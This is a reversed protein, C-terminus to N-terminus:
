KLIAFPLSLSISTNTSDTIYVHMRYQGETLDEPVFQYIEQGLFRTQANGKTPVTSLVWRIQQTEAISDVIRYDRTIRYPAVLMGPIFRYGNHMLNYNEIPTVSIPQHLWLSRLSYYSLKKTNIVSTIGMWTTIDNPHDKWRYAFGGPVALNPDELYEKWKHVYEQAKEYDNMELPQKFISLKSLKPDWYGDPGYASIVVKSAFDGDTLYDKLLQFHEDYFVNLGIFVNPGLLHMHEQIIEIGSASFPISIILNVHPATEYLKGALENVFSFYGDIVQQSYPKAFHNKIQGIVDDGINWFLIQDTDHFMAIERQLQKQLNNVGKSDCYYDLGVPLGAEVMLKLGFRRSSNIVNRLYLDPSHVRICNAGISSIQRFDADLRKKSFMATSQIEVDYPNYCIGKLTDLSIKNQAASISSYPIYSVPDIQKKTAIRDYLGSEDEQERNNSILGAVNWEESLDDLKKGGHSGADLASIDLITPKVKGLDSSHTYNIFDPHNAESIRIIQWDYNDDNPLLSEGNPKISTQWVWIAKNCENDDFAELLHDYASKIRFSIERNNIIDESVLDPDYNLSIFFPKRYLNLTSCLESIVQNYCGNTISDLQPASENNLEIQFFLHDDSDVWQGGIIDEESSLKIPIITTNAVSTHDDYKFARLIFDGTGVRNISRSSNSFYLLSFPLLVFVFAVLISKQRAFKYVYHWMIWILDNVYRTINYLGLKRLLSFEKYNIDPFALTSSLLLFVFNIFAFGAMFLSFPTLDHYLGYFIAFLSICAFAINPLVLKLQEGARNEKPTPLYPVRIRLISFVLGIVYIFWTANRLLGGLFHMGRERDELVWKQVYIHILMAFSIFPALAVFFRFIDIEWPVLFFLLCVIPILIEILNVVGYWYYQPQLLYHLKQRITLKGFIKPLVGFLLDFSGKSWKLQQKLYGYYDEPVLGRTLVEPIYKSKWGKAHLLMSTHLDEALGPAHGGISDLAARRFCCNAGIAQATGMQGMSMMTPGYFQYTQQAAGKGIYSNRANYYGQVIQVFGIKQDEFEPIIKDLLDPHPVHDPDLIFCLEGTAFQLANNINGAKADKRDNRTVHHIGNEKCFEALEQDNAEDCLYSEHPYKINKIALLTNKTMEKPEGPFYTTFVDVTRLKTGSSVSIRSKIHFYNYWDQLIRFIRFLFAFCLLWFLLPHGISINSSFWFVFGGLSIIGFLILVKLIFTEKRTPNTVSLNEFSRVYKAISM